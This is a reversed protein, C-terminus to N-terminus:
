ARVRPAPRKRRLRAETVVYLMAAVALPALYYTGRYALLAALVEGKALQGGLLTVFVTELVGLGAPVHTIIGAVSSIMLVCFVTVFPVRHGLLVYVIGAMLLWNTMALALQVFAMGIPPLIVEHGRVDFERQQTFACKYLYAAVVALFVFGAWQLQDTSVKWNDPVDLLRASFVIGALCFYGVWNTLLSLALVRTIAGNGLGLRSYLRYRFGVGGILSGMNLNFAYSIFAVTMVQRRSLGNQTYARGLLDYCSYVIFSCLTLLAATILDGRHMRLIAGGVESWDVARGQVVLLAVVALLFAVLLVRRLPKWWRRAPKGTSSPHSSGADTSAAASTRAPMQGVAPVSGSPLDPM